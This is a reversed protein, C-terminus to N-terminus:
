IEYSKIIPKSTLSLLTSSYEEMKEKQLYVTVTDGKFSKLKQVAGDNVSLVKKAEVLSKIENKVFKFHTCGLIVTEAKTNLQSSLYDFIIKNDTNSSYKSSSHEDSNMKNSNLNQKNSLTRQPAFHNDILTALEPLALAKGGLEFYWKPLANVSFKTGLFLCSSYNDILEFPIRLTIVKWEKKFDCGLSLTNCACVLTDAGMKKLKEVCSSGIINLENKSKTGFPANKYDAYYIIEGRLGGNICDTLTTLGGKGSDFFGIM